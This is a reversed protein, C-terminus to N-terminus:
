IRPHTPGHRHHHNIVYRNVKRSCDSYALSHIYMYSISLRIGVVARHWQALEVNHSSFETFRHIHKRKCPFYIRLYKGLYCYTALCNVTKRILRGGGGGFWQPLWLSVSRRIEKTKKKLNKESVCNRQPTTSRKNHARCAYCLLVININSIM